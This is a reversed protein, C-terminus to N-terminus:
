IWRKETGGAVFDIFRSPASSCSRGQRNKKRDSPSIGEGSKKRRSSKPKKKEISVSAANNKAEHASATMSAIVAEEAEMRRLQIAMSKTHDPEITSDNDDAGYASVVTSKSTNM